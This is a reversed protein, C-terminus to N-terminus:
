CGATATSSPRGTTPDIEVAFSSGGGTEIQLRTPSTWAVSTLSNDPNDGNFCGVPWTRAAWPSTQRVTLIWLPDIVAIDDTVVLATRGGPAPYTTHGTPAFLVAYGATGLLLTALGATTLARFVPGRGLRAPALWIAIMLSVLLLAVTATTHGTLPDLVLWGSLRGVVGVCVVLAASGAAVMALTFLARRGNGGARVSPTALADGQALEPM